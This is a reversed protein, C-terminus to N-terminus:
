NPVIDFSATEYNRLVSIPELTKTAIRTKGISIVLNDQNVPIFQGTADRQQRQREILIVTAADDVYESAGKLEYVDGFEFLCNNNPKKIHHTLVGVAGLEVLLERYRNLWESAYQNKLRQSTTVQKLNDIMVVKYGEFEKIFHKYNSHLPKPELDLGFAINSTPPYNKEVKVIRDKLNERDGEMVLLGARTEKCEFGLFEAGTGISYLLNLMLISKGIGTRGAILMYQGPQAPLIQDIIAPQSKIELNVWEDPHMLTDSPIDSPMLVTSATDTM